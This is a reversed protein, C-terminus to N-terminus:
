ILDISALEVPLGYPAVQTPLVAVGAPTVGGIVLIVVLIVRM